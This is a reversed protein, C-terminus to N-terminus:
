TIVSNLTNLLISRGGGEKNPTVGHTSSQKLNLMLKNQHRKQFYSFHIELLLTLYKVTSVTTHMHTPLPDQYPRKEM